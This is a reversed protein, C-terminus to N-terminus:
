KDNNDEQKMFQINAYCRTCYRMWNNEDMVQHDNIGPRLFMHLPLKHLKMNEEFSLGCIDCNYKKGFVEYYKMMRGLNNKKWLQTQAEKEIQEVRVYKKIQNVKGM